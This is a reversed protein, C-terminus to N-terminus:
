QLELYKKCWRKLEIPNSYTPVNYGSKRLVRTVLEVCSHKKDTKSGLWKPFIIRLAHFLFNNFEYKKGKQQKLYQISERTLEVNYIVHEKKLKRRTRSVGKSVAEWNNVGIEIGWHNFVKEHQINYRKCYLWMGAHILRASLNYSREGYIRCYIM